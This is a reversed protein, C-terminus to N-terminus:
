LNKGHRMRAVELIQYEPKANLTRSAGLDILVYQGDQYAINGSHFDRFDVINEDHLAKVGTMIQVFFDQVKADSMLIDYAKSDGMYGLALHLFSSILAKKIKTNSMYQSFLPISGLFQKIQRVILSIYDEGNDSTNINSADVEGIMSDAVHDMFVLFTKAFQGHYISSIPTNGDKVIEYKPYEIFAVDMGKKKVVRTVFMVNPLKKGVLRASAAFEDMDTTIKLVRGKEVELAIGYSGRGLLRVSSDIKFMEVIKDVSGMMVLEIDEFDEFESVEKAVISLLKQSTVSNSETLLSVFQRADRRIRNHYQSYKM